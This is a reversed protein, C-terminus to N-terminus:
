RLVLLVEGLATGGGLLRLLVALGTPLGALLLLPVLGGLLRGGGRLLRGGLGLGGLRDLVVLVLRLLRGRLGDAATAPTGAGGGLRLGLRDGLLRLLSLLGGGLRDGATAATRGGLGGGLLDRVHVVVEVLVVEASRRGAVLVLWCLGSPSWDVGAPGGRVEGSLVICIKRRICSGSPGQVLTRPTNVVASLALFWSRSSLPPQSDPGLMPQCSVLRPLRVPACWM